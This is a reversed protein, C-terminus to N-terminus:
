AQQRQLEMMRAISNVFAESESLIQEADARSVAHDYAFDGIEQLEAGRDLVGAAHLPLRGTEVFREVFASRIGQKSSFSLTEQLLAAQAAYFMAFYARSACSDFDELELLVAASRLYKQAKNELARIKDMADGIEFHGATPCL